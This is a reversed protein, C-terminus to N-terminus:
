ELVIEHVAASGAKVVLAHEHTRGDATGVVLRCAGDPLALRYTGKEVRAPYVRPPAGPGVAFLLYREVAAGGRKVKGTVVRLPHLRVIATGGRVKQLVGRYTREKGELSQIRLRYPPRGIAVGGGALRVIGKEDSALGGDMWQSSWCLRIGPMPKGNEDVLKAKTCDVTPDASPLLGKIRISELTTTRGAEIAVVQRAAAFNNRLVLIRGTGPALGPVEFKGTRKDVVGEEVGLGGGGYVLVRLGKIDSRKGRVKGRVAGPPGLRVELTGSGRASGIGAATKVFATGVAGPPLEAFAFRGDEGTQATKTDVAYWRDFEPTLAFHTRGVEMRVDVGPLPRGQPDVVLGSIEDARGLATLLLLAFFARARPTRTM